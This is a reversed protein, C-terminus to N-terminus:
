ADPGAIHGEVTFDQAALDINRIKFSQVAANFELIAPMTTNRLGCNQMTGGVIAATNPPDAPAGTVGATWAFVVNAAGNVVIRTVGKPFTFTAVADAALASAARGFVANGQKANDVCMAKTM